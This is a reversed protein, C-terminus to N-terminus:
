SVQAVYPRAMRAPYLVCDFEAETVFGLELATAAKSTIDGDM